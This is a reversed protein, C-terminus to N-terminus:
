VGLREGGVEGVREKLGVIGGVKIGGGPSRYNNRSQFRARTQENRGHADNM